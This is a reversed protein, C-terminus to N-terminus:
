PISLNIMLGKPKIIEIFVKASLSLSLHNVLTKLGILDAVLFAM